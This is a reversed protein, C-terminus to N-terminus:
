IKQLISQIMDRMSRTITSNMNFIASWKNIKHQLEAVLAPNDPTTSLADIATKVGESAEDAHSKLKDAIDDLKIPNTTFDFTTAM